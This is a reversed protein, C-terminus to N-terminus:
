EYAVGQILAKVYGLVMFFKDNDLQQIMKFLTEQQPTITDLWQKQETDVKNSENGLLYDISVGYLKSLNKLTIYDPVAKENEWKGVTTQNLNLLTALETQTYGFKKRLEKYINM